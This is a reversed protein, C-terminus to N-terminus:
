CACGPSQHCSTDRPICADGCPKSRPGCQRCCSGGGGGGPTAVCSISDPDCTSGTACDELLAWAPGESSGACVLVEGIGCTLAGVGREECSDGVETASECGQLTLATLLVVLWRTMTGGRRSHAPGMTGADFPVRLSLLPNEILALRVLLGALHIARDCLVSLRSLPM